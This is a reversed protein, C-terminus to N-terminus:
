SSASRCAQPCLQARPRVWAGSVQHAEKVELGYPLEEYAFRQQLLVEGDVPVGAAKYLSLATLVITLLVVGILVVGGTSQNEALAM